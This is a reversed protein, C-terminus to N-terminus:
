CVNQNVTGREDIVIGSDSRLIYPFMPTESTVIRRLVTKFRSVVEGPSFHKVIYDDAGTDWAMIVKNIATKKYLPTFM